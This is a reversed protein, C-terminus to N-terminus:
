TEDVVAADLPCNQPMEGVTHACCGSRPHGVLWGGLPHCGLNVFFTSM